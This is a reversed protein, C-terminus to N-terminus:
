EKGGKDEFNCPETRQDRFQKGDIVIRNEYKTFSRSADGIEGQFSYEIIAISDKTFYKGPVRFLIQDKPAVYTTAGGGGFGTRSILGSPLAKEIQVWLTPIRTNPLVTITSVGDRRAMQEATIHSSWTSLSINVLSRNTLRFWPDTKTSCEYEVFIPLNDSSAESITYGSGNSVQIDGEELPLLINAARTTQMFGKSSIRLDVWGELYSWYFMAFVPIEKEIGTFRWEDICQFFDNDLFDKGRFREVNKPKGMEITFRYGFSFTSHRGIYKKPVTPVCFSSLATKKTKDVQEVGGQEQGKSLIVSSLLLFACISLRLSTSILNSM